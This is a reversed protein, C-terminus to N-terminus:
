FAPEVVGRVPRPLVGAIAEWQRDRAREMRATVESMTLIEIDGRDRDIVLRELMEEFLSIGHPSETLNEPHLCFHFIGRSRVAAAVGRNFREIRSPLGAVATRSARIPYLFLSSPINWLGPQVEQPWVPLPTARRLEDFLRAIKGYITPGFQFAPSVTRGRYCRIGHLPLLAHHAEQERGFSFSLPRVHAQALAKVGESLESKLVDPTASADTWIFHTLGGHLGIEQFPDAERLKEVFSRQYWLPATAEDGGRIRNVWEAPLGRMRKDRPGESGALTLGGVLFWTASVGASTLCGLLKTHADPAGPYQHQFQQDNLLDLYGWIQETDLSLMVVGREFQKHFDSCEFPM